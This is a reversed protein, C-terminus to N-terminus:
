PPDLEIRVSLLDTGFRRVAAAHSRGFMELRRHPDDDPVAAARGTRWTRGLRLRVRPDATLNRVYGAHRGQEAVIWATDGRLRVGVATRRRRGTARGMTELLAYGPVLGARVALKVPPNLLYKQLRVVRRRRVARRREAEAMGGGRKQRRM